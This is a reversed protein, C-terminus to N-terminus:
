PLDGFSAFKLPQHLDTGTDILGRIKFFFIPQPPPKRAVLFFGPYAVASRSSSNRIETRKVIHMASLSRAADPQRADHRDGPSGTWTTSTRGSSTGGGEGTTTTVFFSQIKSTGAVENHWRRKKARKTKSCQFCLPRCDRVNIRRVCWLSTSCSM